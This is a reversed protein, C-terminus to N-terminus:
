QPMVVPDGFYGAMNLLDMVELTAPSHEALRLPRGLRAAERKALILLQFGATDMESVGALSVEMETCDQLCQMLGQKLELAQYITMEGEVKVRFVGNEVQHSIM